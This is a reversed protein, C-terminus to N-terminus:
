GIITTHYITIGYLGDFDLKFIVSPRNTRFTLGLKRPKTNYGVGIIYSGDPSYIPTAPCIDKPIGQLVELKDEEVDYQVIVSHIRKELQDGWNQKYTYKDGQLLFSYHKPFRKM